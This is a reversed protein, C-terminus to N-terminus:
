AGDRGLEPPRLTARFQCNEGPDAFDEEGEGEGEGEGARADNETDGGPAPRGPPCVAAETLDGEPAIESLSSYKKPPSSSSPIASASIALM